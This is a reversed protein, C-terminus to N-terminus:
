TVPSAPMASPLLLAHVASAAQWPVSDHTPPRHRAFGTPPRTLLPTAPKATM